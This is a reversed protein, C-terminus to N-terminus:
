REQMRDGDVLTMVLVSRNIVVGPAEHHPLINAKQLLVSVFNLELSQEVGPYRKLADRADLFHVIDQTLDFPARYCHVPENRRGREHFELRVLHQYDRAVHALDM